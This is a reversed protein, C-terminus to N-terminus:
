SFGLGEERVHGTFGKSIGLGIRTERDIREATWGLQFLSEIQEALFRKVEHTDAEAM